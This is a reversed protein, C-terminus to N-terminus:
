RAYGEVGILRDLRELALGQNRLADIVRPVAQVTPQLDRRIRGDTSDHLTLIDGARPARTLRQVIWESRTAWGDRGRRTWTVIAYGDRTAPDGIGPHKFGLPPRFLRPRKGIADAIVQETRQLERAWYRHLRFMGHYAHDYSHNAILHGARDMRRLLQPHRAAHRGIVFFAARVDARELADLVAPTAEPHPGDDFSLAVRPPAARRGHAIVPALLRSRPSFAGYGLTGGVGAAGALLMSWYAMMIFIRATSIPM